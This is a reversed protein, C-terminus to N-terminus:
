AHEVGPLYVSVTTGRGPYSMLEVSGNMAVLMKRVNVLGLGTGKVKSTYFPQFLYKQDDPLIGKGNDVVRIEVRKDNQEARIIVKGGDMDRIADAANTILNLMVHHLARSDALVRMMNDDVDIEIDINKQHLDGRVLSLFNEMFESVSLKETVPTEFLSYNKLATLLYEIRGVEELSRSVFDDITELDYSQLNRQLVSLAMKISNIPNGIEHRIGSFIFGLNETLNTAEIVSEMKKRETVDTLMIIKGGERSPNFTEIVLQRENLRVAPQSVTFPSYEEPDDVSILAQLVSAPLVHWYDYGLLAERPRRLLRSARSNVFVIRDSEIEIVGQSISNLIIRFHHNQELLERTVQRPRLDSAGKIGLDGCARGQESNRIAQLVYVSMEKFPGKAIYEDAGFQLMDEQQELLAGSVAVLYCHKLEPRGRIIRCLDDGGIKPMILDVFIIDPIWESLIDLCSFVDEALRITHGTRKLLEAMLKIIVPNNDVVLINKTGTTLM